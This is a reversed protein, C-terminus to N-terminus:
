FFLCIATNLTRIAALKLPMTSSPRLFQKLKTVVPSLDVLKVHPLSCVVRCAELSVTQKFSDVARFLFGMLAEKQGEEGLVQTM